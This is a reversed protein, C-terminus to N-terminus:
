TVIVDSVIKTKYYKVSQNGLDCNQGTYGTGRCDCSFDGISNICIGGHQCTALHACEDIDTFHHTNLLSDLVM